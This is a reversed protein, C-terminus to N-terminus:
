WEFDEEDEDEEMDENCKCECEPLGCGECLPCNNGCECEIFM